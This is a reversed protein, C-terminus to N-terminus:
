EEGNCIERKDPYTTRCWEVWKRRNEERDQPSAGNYVFVFNKGTIQNLIAALADHVTVPAYHRVGEFADSWKNNFRIERAALPRVDALHGVLYPVVQDGISELENFSRQEAKESKTTQDVLQSVRGELRKIKQGNACGPLLGLAILILVTNM